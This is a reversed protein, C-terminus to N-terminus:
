IKGKRMDGLIAFVLTERPKRKTLPKKSLFNFVEEKLKEDNKTYHNITDKTAIEVKETEETLVPIRKQNEQTIKNLIDQIECM